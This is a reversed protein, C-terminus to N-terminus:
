KSQKFQQLVRSIIPHPDIAAPGDPDLYYSKGFQQGHSTWGATSGDQLVITVEPLAPDACRLHLLGRSDIWAKSGGEFAAEELLYGAPADIYRLKATAAGDLKMNQRESFLVAGPQSCLELTQGKGSFLVFPHNPAIAAKAFHRRLNPVQSIFRTVEPELPAQDWKGSAAHLTINGHDAMFEQSTRSLHLRVREENRSIELVRALSKQIVPTFSQTTGSTLGFVSSSLIALPNETNGHPCVIAVPVEGHPFPQPGVTPFVVSLGDTGIARVTHTANDFLYRGHLSHTDPPLSGYAIRHGRHSFVHVLNSAFVYIHRADGTIRTPQDGPSWQLNVVSATLEQWNVRIAYVSNPGFKGIVATHSDASAGAECWILNGLPMDDALEIPGRDWDDWLTLRRDKHIALLGYGAAFWAKDPHLPHPVRLAPRELRCFAPLDQNDNKLVPAQPKAAPAFIDDVKFRLERVLLISKGRQQLLRVGGERDVAAIWLSPIEAARLRSLFDPDALASQSTILVADAPCEEAKLLQALRPMAAGPHAEAEVAGMHQEIGERSTLAIPELGEVAARFASVKLKLDGTAAFAMALSTALLRPVGWMRVGSDLLLTRRMPPSHPPQERRLYLAENTAVRVALTLDDNALETILLRDFTGRNTIDSVGGLPMEDRAVLPRPLAVAALMQSALRAMGGHEPDNTLSSLLARVRQAEPLEAEAPVVELEFGTRLRREFSPLDFRALGETLDGFIPLLNSSTKASEASEFNGAALLQLVESSEDRGLRWIRSDLVYDVLEVRNPLRALVDKRLSHIVDLTAFIEEIWASRTHSEAGLEKVASEYAIRSLRQRISPWQERCASLLIAVAALSPLGREAQRKLVEAFEQRFAVTIEGDISVAERKEDWRFFPLLSSVLYGRAARAPDAM